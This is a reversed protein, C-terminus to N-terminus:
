NQDCISRLSITAESDTCYGETYQNVIYRRISHSCYSLLFLIRLPASRVLTATNVVVHTATMHVLEPHLSRPHTLLLSKKAIIVVQKKTCFHTM